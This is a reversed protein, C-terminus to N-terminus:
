QLLNEIERIVENKRIIWEPAVLWPKAADASLRQIIMDPPIAKLALSVRQAYQGMTLPVYDGSLYMKELVTGKLVHLPHFKLAKVGRDALWLCSDRLQTSQENPLGAILHACINIPFGSCRYLCEEVEDVGHGRNLWILGDPDTTQVGLELWVQLGQSDLGVLLDLFDAPVMDPRTGLSIGVVKIKESALRLSEYIRQELVPLPLNTSTYSQFYLIAREAKYRKKAVQVGQEIQVDLDRKEIWAGSGGGRFDCFICGGKELGDRHPCGAGIDLSIKQVRGGFQSKLLASWKLYPKHM